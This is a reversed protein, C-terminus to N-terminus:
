IAYGMARSKESIQVVELQTVRNITSSSVALGRGPRAWISFIIHEFVLIQM